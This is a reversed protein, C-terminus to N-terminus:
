NKPEETQRTTRKSKKKPETKKKIKKILTNKKRTETKKKLMKISTYNGWLPTNAEARYCVSDAVCIFYTGMDRGEQM